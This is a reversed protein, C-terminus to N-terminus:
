GAGQLRARVVEAMLARPACLGTWIRFQAAAQGVFWELGAATVAGAAEAEALLRTRIPNYVSDFVVMGERLMGCPVPTDDVRPWMGVSTSNVIVDPRLAPMEAIPCWDVGVQGALARARAATRNAIVLRGVRGRLGCAIARAAGGAGVLLVTRASLPELRARRVAGEISEVAAAVDTNVGYRRGDRLDVTNVAGIEAALSEVEDMLPLVAEKHPLTVSLGRLDFPTFAELFRAPDLVRFPLYVANLGAHAFAANHVAPSMSHMVPDAVVGYVATSADVSRIRYMNLMGDLTVQGPASERGPEASAFTLFAGYKPALVRSAVGAEGMSLAIVPTRRAERQLLSLVPAVDAADAATVAIKAVDAGADRLRRLLAPLDAPTGQTDHRSVIRRCGAPLEGLAGVADLEVDVFEAGQEAARRLLALRQAEPATCAGGERVPRNTVIVCRDRGALLREPDCGAMMDLRLEVIDVERPLSRMRALASETDNETIPVCLKTM